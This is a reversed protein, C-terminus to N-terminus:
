ANVSCKPREEASVGGGLDDAFTKDAALDDLNFWAAIVSRRKGITGGDLGTGRGVESVGKGFQMIGELFHAVAITRQAFQDAGVFKVLFKNAQDTVAAV